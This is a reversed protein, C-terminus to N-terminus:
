RGHGFLATSPGNQRWKAACARGQSEGGVPALIRRRRARSPWAQPELRQTGRCSGASTSGHVERGAGGRGPAEKGLRAVALRFPQSENAFRHRNCPKRMRRWNAAEKRFARGLRRM